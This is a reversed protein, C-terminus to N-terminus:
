YSPKQNHKENEWWKTAERETEERKQNTRKMKSRIRNANKTKKDKDKTGKTTPGQNISTCKGKLAVTDERQKRQSHINLYISRFKTATTLIMENRKLHNDKGAQWSSIMWWGIPCRRRSSSFLFNHFSKETRKCKRGIYKVWGTKEGEDREEKKEKIKM